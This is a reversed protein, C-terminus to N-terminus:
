AAILLRVIKAIIIWYRITGIKDMKRLLRRSSIIKLQSIIAYSESSIKVHYLPMGQSRTLPVIWLSDKSFKKIVIVPREFM